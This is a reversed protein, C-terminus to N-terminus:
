ANQHRQMEREHKAREKAEEFLEFSRQKPKRSMFIDDIEELTLQRTDAFAKV